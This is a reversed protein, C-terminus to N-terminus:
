RMIGVSPPGCGPPIGEAGEAFGHLLIQMGPSISTFHILYRNESAELACIVKAYLEPADEGCADYIEPRLLIDEYPKLPVPTEIAGRRGTLGVLLAPETRNEMRKGTLRVYHMAVPRSLVACCAAAKELSSQPADARGLLERCMLAEGMGKAHVEVEDGLILGPGAAEMLAPSVLVQGGITFSEIRATLNVAQGVVAYKSRKTSGINGVVVDGTHLSIGMELEPWGCKRNADNVGEMARQMELACRTARDAANALALPAGFIVLIADGIIEDVTGGNRQIVELMATLYHNVISVVEAPDLRGVLATFGRLDSLLLTVERKEGGLKLGDPADLLADVIEDSTYRGFTKRIFTNRRELDGNLEVLREHSDKLQRAMSNFAVSFDGMFSVQQDLDGAAIQQTKWTLHRLNSQLTKFSHIVGMRGALHSTDLEGRALREMAEAFPGFEALFRNVYALLQRIENDPLDSPMPIPVPVKGMCLRHFTATITDILEEDVSIMLRGAQSGGYFPLDERRLGM